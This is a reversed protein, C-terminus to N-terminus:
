KGAAILGLIELERETLAAEGERARGSQELARLRDLLGAAIRPSLTSQGVAASRIGGIIEDLTSEKLLYGRAGALIADIVDREADSITLVLVNARPMQELIHRTAEIGSIGPLGLDMLVVDPRVRGAVRVAREGDAAEEVVDIGDQESLLRVLGSRFLDHDDVVVVRISKTAAGAEGSAAPRPEKLRSTTGGGV